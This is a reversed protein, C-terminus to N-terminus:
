YFFTILKLEFIWVHLPMQQFYGVSLLYNRNFYRLSFHRKSSFGLCGWTIPRYSSVCLLGWATISCMLPFHSVFCLARLEKFMLLTVLIAASIRSSHCKFSLNVAKLHRVHFSCNHSFFNRHSYTQDMVSKPSSYLVKHIEEYPFPSFNLLAAGYSIM